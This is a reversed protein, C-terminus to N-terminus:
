KINVSDILVNIKVYKKVILTTIKKYILKLFFIIDIYLINNINTLM